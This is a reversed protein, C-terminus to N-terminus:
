TPPPPQATARRAAVCSPAQRGRLMRSATGEQSTPPRAARPPPRRLLPPGAPRPLTRLAAGRFTAGCPPQQGLPAPPSPPVSAWVRTPRQPAPEARGWGPQMPPAPSCPSRRGVPKAARTRGGQGWPTRNPRTCEGTPGGWQATPTTASCRARSRAALEKSPVRPATGPIPPLPRTRCAAALAGPAAGAARATATPQRPLRGRRRPLSPSATRARRPLAPPSALRASPRAEAHRCLGSSTQRPAPAGSLRRSRTGGPLLPEASPRPTTRQTRAGAARVSDDLPGSTRGM